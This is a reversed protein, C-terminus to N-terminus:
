KKNKYIYISIHYISLYTYVYIYAGAEWSDRGAAGWVIEEDGKYKNIKM